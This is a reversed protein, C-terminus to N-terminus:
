AKRLLHIDLGTLHRGLALLALTIGVVPVYTFLLLPVYRSDDIRNHKPYLLFYVVDIPQEQALTQDKVFSPTEIPAKRARPLAGGWEKVSVPKTTTVVTGWRTEFVYELYYQFELTEEISAETREVWKETVYAPTHRGLVWIALDRGLYYALFGAGALGLLLLVAGVIRKIIQGM